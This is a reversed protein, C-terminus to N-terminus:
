GQARKKAQQLTRRAGERVLKAWSVSEGRRATEERALAKLEALLEPPMRISTLVTCM